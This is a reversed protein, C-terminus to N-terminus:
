DIQDIPDGVDVAAPNVVVMTSAEIIDADEAPADEASEILAYDDNFDLVRIRTEKVFGGSVIKITAEVKGPKFDILAQRPLKLGREQALDLSLRCVRQASLRELGSKAELVLLTGQRTEEVRRISLSDFDMGLDLSRGTIRQNVALDEGLGSPLYCVFYQRIGHIMKLLPEQEKFTTKSRSRGQPADHLLNYLERNEKADIDDITLEEFGDIAYSIIGSEPAKVVTAENEVLRRLSEYHELAQQYESDKFKVQALDQSRQELTLRLAESLTRLAATDQLEDLAYFRTFIENIEGDKKEAIRRAESGQEGQLLEYRRDILDSEAKYMENVRNLEDPAVIQGVVQDNAVRSGQAFSAVFEGEIPSNVVHEDRIILATTEYSRKLSDERLFMFRAQPKQRGLIRLISVMAIITILIIASSLFFIRSTRRRKELVIRRNRIQQNTHNTRQAM